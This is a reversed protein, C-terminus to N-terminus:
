GFDAEPGRNLAPRKDEAPALTPKGEGSQILNALETKGAKGVLKEAQAPTIFKQTFLDDDGWGMRHLTDTAAREDRWTRNSRGAVLKFQGGTVDDGKTLSHVALQEVGNLWDTIAKKHRLISAIEDESLRDMPKVPVVDDGSFELMANDMSREALKPCLGKAKCFKCHDGPDLFRDAWSATQQRTQYAQQVVRVADAVRTEAWDILEGVTAVDERIPGAEHYARPQVVGMRVERIANIDHGRERLHLLAGVAYYAFQVNGEAEVVVGKGHKYDRVYLVDGVLGVFDATGFMDEAWDGLPALSVQVEVNHEGFDDALERLHRVYVDVANAMDADVTWDVEDTPASEGIYEFPDHGRLLCAEGVAHAATGERSADSETDPMGEELVLSGPCQMWRHAGSAGLKAHATPM